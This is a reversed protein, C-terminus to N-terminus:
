HYVSTFIQEIGADVGQKRHLVPALMMTFWAKSKGYLSNIICSFHFNPNPKYIINTTPLDRQWIWRSTGVHEYVNYMYTYM